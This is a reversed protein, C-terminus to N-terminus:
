NAHMWDVQPLSNRKRPSFDQLSQTLYAIGAESHGDNSSISGRQCMDLRNTNIFRLVETYKKCAGLAAIELMAVEHYDPAVFSAASALLMM